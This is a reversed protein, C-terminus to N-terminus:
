NFIKNFKVIEKLRIEPSTEVLLDYQDKSKKLYFGITEREKPNKSLEIKINRNLKDWSISSLRHRESLENVKLFQAITTIFGALINLSGIGITYFFRFKLPIRDVAFNAVGTLTSIFIVPITFCVHWWYYHRYCNTHLYRYTMAKDSWDIFLKEYYPTWEFITVIDSGDVMMNKFNNDEM